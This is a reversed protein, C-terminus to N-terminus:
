QLLNIPGGSIVLLSDEGSAIIIIIVPGITASGDVEV